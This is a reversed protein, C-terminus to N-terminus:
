KNRRLKKEFEKSVKWDHGLAWGILLCFILLIIFIFGGYETSDICIGSLVTPSPM